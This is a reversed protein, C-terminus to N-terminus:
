TVPTDDDPRRRSAARLVESAEAADHYEGVIVEGDYSTHGYVVWTSEAVQVEGDIDVGAEALELIETVDDSVQGPDLGPDTGTDPGPHDPHPEAM